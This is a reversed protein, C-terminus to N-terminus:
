SSAPSAKALRERIYKDDITPVLNAILEKHDTDLNASQYEKVEEAIAPKDVNLEEMTQVTRRLTEVARQKQRQQSYIWCGVGVAVIAIAVYILWPAYWLALAAAALSGALVGLDKQRLYLLIGSVVVLAMGAYLLPRREQADIKHLATSQDPARENAVVAEVLNEEVVNLAPSNYTTTEREIAPSQPTAEIKERVVVTGAPIENRHM